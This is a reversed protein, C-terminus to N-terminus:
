DQTPEEQSEQSEETNSASAIESQTVYVPEDVGLYEELCMGKKNIDKAIVEGVYRIHWSEYQYGTIEDKGEPYRIIFGYNEANKKLWDSEPTKAFDNNITNVDITYGSQHESHGPKSSFTNAQEEGYADKYNNFIKEQYEYDRYGSGIYIDLGQKAADSKLKDFAEQTEDLIGPDYSKTLGFEKYVIMIGDIYTIGDKEELKRVTVAMKATKGGVSAEITCKGPAVGLINGDNDVKAIKKDTTSYKIDKIDSSSDAEIQLGIHKTRKPVLYIEEKEFAVSKINSNISETTNEETTSETQIEVTSEPIANGENNKSTSRRVLLVVAAIIIILILIYVVIHSKKIRYPKAHSRPKEKKRVVVKKAM